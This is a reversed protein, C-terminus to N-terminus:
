SQANKYSKACPLADAPARVKLLGADKLHHKEATTALSAILGNFVKKMSASHDPKHGCPTGQTWSVLTLDETQAVDQGVLHGAAVDIISKRVDDGKVADAGAYMMLPASYMQLAPVRATWM